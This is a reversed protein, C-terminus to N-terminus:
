VLLHWGDTAHCLMRTGSHMTVYKYSIPVATDYKSYDVIVDLIGSNQGDYDVQSYINEAIVNAAYQKVAGDTLELDYLITNLIPNSDFNGVINEDNDKTGGQVKTSQVNEGQPLLIKGHILMDTFINKM